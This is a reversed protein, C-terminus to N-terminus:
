RALLLALVAGAASSLVNVADNDLWAVGGAHTTATGCVHIPRETHEACRTCWRKVQWRAGLLSDVLAGAIGGVFAALVVRVPWQLAGAVAAICGAGAVTAMVGLGTVGGSTGAPVTQWTTILRPPTGALTGVETGWTDATAAALAGLGFAAWGPGPTILYLIGALAFVGGNALVQVADRRGGKAVVREVTHAGAGAGLYRGSPLAARLHSLASSTLFFTILLAGWTWGATVCITGIAIAAIAGSRTLWGARAAALAISLALALGALARLM